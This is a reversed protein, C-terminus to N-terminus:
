QSNYILRPASNNILHMHTDRRQCAAEIESALWAHDRPYEIWRAYCDTQSSGSQMLNANFRPPYPHIERNFSPLHIGLLGNAPAGASNRLSAAIEWDVYRRKWTNQGLMVLTVSTNAMYKERIRRMVYDTNNSEVIDPAMELGLARHTFVEGQHSFEDIFARVAVEDAHHYSVFCRRTAKTNFLSALGFQYSM